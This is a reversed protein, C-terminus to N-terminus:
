KRERHEARDVRGLDISTQRLLAVAAIMLSASTMISAFTMLLEIVIRLTEITM